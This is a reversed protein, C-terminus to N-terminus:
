KKGTVKKMFVESNVDYIKQVKLHLLSISIEMDHCNRGSPTVSLCQLVIVRCVFPRSLKQVLVELSGNKKKTGRFITNINM